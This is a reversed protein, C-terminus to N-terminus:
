IQRDYRGIMNPALFQAPAKKRAAKEPPQAKEKRAQKKKRGAMASPAVLDKTASRATSAKIRWLMAIIRWSSSERNAMPSSSSVSSSKTGLRLSLQGLEGLEECVSAARLYPLCPSLYPLRDSRPEAPL